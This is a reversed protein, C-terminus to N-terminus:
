CLLYSVDVPLVCVNFHTLSKKHLVLKQIDAHLERQQRRKGEALEVNEKLFQDLYIHKPYKFPKREGTVTGTRMLDFALVESPEFIVQYQKIDNKHNALQASLRGVLDNTDSPGLAEVRVITADQLLEGPEGDLNSNGHQFQMVRQRRM